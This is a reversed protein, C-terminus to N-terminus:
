INTIDKAESLIRAQFHPQASRLDVVDFAVLTLPHEQFLANLEALKEPFDTEIAIDFDSRDDADGRARSGFLLVRTADAVEKAKQVSWQLVALEEDSGCKM